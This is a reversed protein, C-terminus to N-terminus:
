SRIMDEEAALGIGVTQSAGGGPRRGKVYVEVMSGANMAMLAIRAVKVRMKMDIKKLLFFLPLKRFSVPPVVSDSCGSLRRVILPGSSSTSLRFPAAAGGMGRSHDPIELEFSSIWLSPSNFPLASAAAAAAAFLLVKSSALVGARM